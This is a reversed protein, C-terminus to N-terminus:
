TASVITTSLNGIGIVTSLGSVMSGYGIGAGGSMVDEGVAGTGLHLRGDGRDM